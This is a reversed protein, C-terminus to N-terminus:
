VTVILGPTFDPNFHTPGNGRPNSLVRTGEVFYDASDHTHGHIWLQPLGAGMLHELNSAFAPTLKANRPDQYRPHISRGSPAHHTIVVTPGAWPESLAQHLFRRSKAHLPILHRAHLRSYTATRIKKFDRIGLEADLCAFPQNGNLNYDTWLTSGIFRVGEIVIETDDMFRVHSSEAAARMLSERTKLLSGGYYEHNGPVYLVPKGAFSKDAWTIGKTGEHIDGALVVVDADAADEPHFPASELHLDSLILLKM